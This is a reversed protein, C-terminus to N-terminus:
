YKFLKYVQFPIKTYTKSSKIHQNFSMKKPYVETSVYENIFGVPIIIM